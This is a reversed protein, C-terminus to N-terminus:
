SPPFAAISALLSGKITAIRAISGEARVARLCNSSLTSETTRRIAGGDGLRAERLAPEGLWRVGGERKTQTVSRHLAILFVSLRNREDGVEAAGELMGGLM